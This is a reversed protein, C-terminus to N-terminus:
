TNLFCYSICIFSPIYFNLHPHPSSHPFRKEWEGEYWKYGSMEGELASKGKQRAAKQM